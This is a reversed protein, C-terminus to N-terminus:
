GNEKMLDDMDYLGPEKGVLWAAATMAGEAFLARDHAEHRLTLTQTGTNIHIEHIGVVNGMRVSQVGIEGPQRKGHGTRGSTIEGTGRAERVAKALMLATGSPADVKRNHHTEVIEIDADPFAAAAQKALKVLVAIGVSMNGTYFVPIERAADFIAQKEEADHGTTGVVLPLKHARAYAAVDFIATHFSFDLIVDAAASVEGMTLTIGTGGEPSVAAALESGEYHADSLRLLERGMAGTAGHVIVRM